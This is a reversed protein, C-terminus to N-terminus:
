LQVSNYFVNILFTCKDWYFLDYETKENMTAAPKGTKEEKLCCIPSLTIRWIFHCSAASFLVFELHLSNLCYKWFYFHCGSLLRRKNRINVDIRLVQSDPLFGISGSPFALEQFYWKQHFVHSILRNFSPQHRLLCHPPHNTMFRFM